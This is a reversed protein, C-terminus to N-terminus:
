SFLVIYFHMYSNIDNEFNNFLDLSQVFDKINLSYNKIEGFTKDLIVENRNEETNNDKASIEEIIKKGDLNAIEIELNQKYVEEISGYKNIITNISNISSSLNKNSQDVIAEFNNFSYQTIFENSLKELNNFILEETRKDLLEKINKYKPEIMNEGFNILFMNVEESISYNHKNYEAIANITNNLKKEIETFVLDSDINFIKDMEAKLQIQQLEIFYKMYNTAENLNTKYEEIFHNKIDKNIRNIYENEYKHANGSM